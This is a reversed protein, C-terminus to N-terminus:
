CNNLIEFFEEVSGCIEKPHEVNSLSLYYVKGSESDWYYDDEDEDLALPIFTKPIADNTENYKLVKELPMTGYGLARILVVCFEVGFKEFRCENIEAGNYQLYYNKLIKPFKIDLEWELKDIYEESVLADRNEYDIFNFM